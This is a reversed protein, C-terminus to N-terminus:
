CVEPNFQVGYVLLRLSRGTGPGATTHQSKKPKKKKTKTQKKKQNTRKKNAPEMIVTAQVM